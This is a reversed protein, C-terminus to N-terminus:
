RDARAVPGINGHLTSLRGRGTEITERRMAPAMHGSGRRRVTGLDPLSKALVDVTAVFRAAPAAIRLREDIRWGGALVRLAVLEPIKPNDSFGPSASRHHDHAVAATGRGTCVDDDDIVLGVQAVHQRAIETPVAEVRHRHRAAAASRACRTLRCGSRTTSSRFMGSSCPRLMARWRRSVDVAATSISVAVAIRDIADDAELHAGVVVDGLRHIRALQQGAHARDQAAGPGAWGIAAVALGAVPRVMRIPRQRSSM